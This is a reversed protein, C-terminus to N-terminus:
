DYKPRQFWFDYLNLSIGVTFCKENPLVSSSANRISYDFFINAESLSRRMPVGFGATIGAEKIKSGNYIVYSNGIHGGLRYDVRKLPYLNSFRDPTYEIGLILTRNDTLTGIAGPIKAESWNTTVFDIGATFKNIVGFAIGARLTGPLHMKGSNDSTLTITDGSGMSNYRSIFHNYESNLNKGATYSIGANFFKDKVPITLQLGYDFNIGNANLIEVSNHHFYNDLDDFLFSNTRTIEGFMVSMNVGASVYKNLKLGAGIFFNTFGGVGKHKSTYEGVAPNYDPDTSVVEDSINYYANSYPVLGVGIGLGKTIPFGLMIHDFNMDDSQYSNDGSSIVNISYDFGFDFLFSITDLSSFSAPNTFFLSTNDRLPTSLGGMGQSKISGTPEILGINFRSYPSNVQKQATVVTSFFLMLFSFVIITKNQM